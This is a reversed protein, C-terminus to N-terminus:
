ALQYRAHLDTLNRGEGVPLDFFRDSCALLETVVETWRRTPDDSPWEVLPIRILLNTRTSAGAAFSPLSRRAFPAHLTM